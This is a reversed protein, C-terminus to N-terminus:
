VDKFMIGAFPCKIPQFIRRRPFQHLALFAFAVAIATPTASFGGANALSPDDMRTDAHDGIRICAATTAAIAATSVCRGCSLREDRILM